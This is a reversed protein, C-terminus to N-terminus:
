KSAMIQKTTQVDANLQALLAELNDFKKQSRLRETFRVRVQEGYLDRDFDIM